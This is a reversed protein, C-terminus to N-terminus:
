EKTSVKFSVRQSRTRQARTELSFKLCSAKINVVKHVSGNGTFCLQDFLSM